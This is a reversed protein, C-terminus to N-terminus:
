HQSQRMTFNKFSSTNLLLDTLALGSSVSTMDSHRTSTECNNQSMFNHFLLHPDALNRLGYIRRSTASTIDMLVLSYVVERFYRSRTKTEKRLLSM